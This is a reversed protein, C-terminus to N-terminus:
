PQKGRETKRRLTRLYAKQAPTVRYSEIAKQIAKNHVFDPLADTELYQVAAEYQKALATALLWALMMNVYYDESRVSLAARLLAPDFPDLFHDMVMKAGFRVTYVRPSQLWRLIEARLAPLDKKFARPSLSDCTAWNDVYPLFRQVAALAEDFPKIPAILFSHLQNEEYYHHPLQALFVASEEPTLSKALRRLAPVRVGIVRDPDVTPLLSCHFARYGPDQLEFLRQQLPTREM